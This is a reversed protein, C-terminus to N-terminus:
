MRNKNEFASEHSKIDDYNLLGDKDTNEFPHACALLNVM